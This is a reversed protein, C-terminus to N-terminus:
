RDKRLSDLQYDMGNCDALKAWFRQKTVKKGGESIVRWSLSDYDDDESAATRNSQRIYVRDCELVIGAPLTVEMRKLTRDEAYQNWAWGNPGSKPKALKRAKAFDVNRYELYLTFTWPKTLVIRDGCAPVYLKM